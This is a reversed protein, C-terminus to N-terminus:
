HFLHASLYFLIIIKGFAEALLSLTVLVSALDGRVLRNKLIYLLMWIPTVCFVGHLIPNEMYSFVLSLLFSATYVYKVYSPMEPKLSKRRGHM